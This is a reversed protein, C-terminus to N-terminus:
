LYWIALTGADYKQNVDGGDHMLRIRTLPFGVDASGFSIQSKASGVNDYFQGNFTWKNSNGIRLIEIMGSADENDGNTNRYFLASTKAGWEVAGSGIEHVRGIYGTTVYASAHGLQIGFDGTANVASLGRAAIKIMKVTSPLGTLEITALEDGVIFESMDVELGLKWSAAAIDAVMSPINVEGPNQVASYAKIFYNVAVNTPRSVAFLGETSPDTDMILFDGSYSAGLGRAGTYLNPEVVDDYGLLDRVATDSTLPAGSVSWVAANNDDVAVLSGKQNDGLTRGPDVSGNVDLGRLFQGQLNPLRFQTATPSTDDGAIAFRHGISTWLDPFTAKSVLSGRCHLFGPGPEAAASAIISGVPLIGDAGSNNPSTEVWQVSSGDNFYIFMRGLDSHWWLQKETPNAPASPGVYVTAQQSGSSIVEVWVLNTPSDAYYIFMQLTESNWWLQNETPSTPPTAGVHIKASNGGGGGGPSTEVWQTSDGDNYYIFMRGIESNWWLQKEVPSTPPIIGIHVGVQLNALAELVARVSPAKTTTSPSMSDQVKSDAYANIAAYDIDVNIGAIALGISEVAAVLEPMGIMEEPDVHMHDIVPFHEPVVGLQEWYTWRPNLLKDSLIQNIQTTTLTWQGGVTQYEQFVLVGSFNKNLLTISGYIPLATNITAEKYKHTFLFDVGEVLPTMTGGNLVVLSARYFPAFNPIVIHFENSNVATVTQVENTVLNSPAVGSPDFPYAYPGIAPM